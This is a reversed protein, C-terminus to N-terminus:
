VDQSLQMAVKRSFQIARFLATKYYMNYTWRNWSFLASKINQVFKPVQEPKLHVSDIFNGESVNQLKKLRWFTVTHDDRYLRLLETNILIRLNEYIAQSTDRPKFRQFLSRVFLQQVGQVQRVRNVLTDISSVIQYPNSRDSIDKRGIQLFVREMPHHLFNQVKRHNLM